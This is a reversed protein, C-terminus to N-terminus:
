EKSRYAIVVKEIATGSDRLHELTKTTFKLNAITKEFDLDLNSSQSQELLHQVLHVRMNSRAILERYYHAVTTIWDALKEQQDSQLMPLLEDIGNTVYEDPMPIPM